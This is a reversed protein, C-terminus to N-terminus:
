ISGKVILITFTNILHHLIFFILSKFHCKPWARGDYIHKFLKERFILVHSECICLGLSDTIPIISAVLTVPRVNLLTGCCLQCQEQGPRCHPLATKGLWKLSQLLLSKYGGSACRRPKVSKVSIDFLELSNLPWQFHETSQKYKTTLSFFHHLVSM